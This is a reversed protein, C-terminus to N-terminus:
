RGAYSYWDITGVGIVFDWGPGAPQGNNGQTIDVVSGGYTAENSRGVPDDVWYM